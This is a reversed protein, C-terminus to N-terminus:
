TYLSNAYMYAAHAWDSRKAFMSVSGSTEYSSAQWTPLAIGDTSSLLLRLGVGAEDHSVSGARWGM